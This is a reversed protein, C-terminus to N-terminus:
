NKRGSTPTKKLLESAAQKIYRDVLVALAGMQRQMSKGLETDALKRKECAV